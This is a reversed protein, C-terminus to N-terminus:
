TAQACDATLRPKSPFGFVPQSRLSTRHRCSQNRDKLWRGWHMAPFYQLHPLAAQHYTRGSIWAPHSFTHCYGKPFLERGDPTYRTINMLRAAGRPRDRARRGRSPPNAAKKEWRTWDGPRQCEAHLQHLLRRFRFDSSRRERM